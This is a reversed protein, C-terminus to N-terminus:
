ASAEAPAGTRTVAPLAGLLACARLIEGASRAAATPRAAAASDGADACCEGLHECIGVDLEPLLADLRAALAVRDAAAGRALLTAEVFAGLLWPVADRGPGPRLGRPAALTAAASALAREREAPALPARAFSAALLRGAAAAPDDAGERHSAVLAADARARAQRRRHARERNGAAEALESGFALASCWLADTLIRASPAPLDLVALDADESGPDEDRADLVEDVAASLLAVASADAAPCAEFYREVARVFWLSAAFGAYDSDAPGTGFRAPLRGDRLYPLAGCLVSACAAHRGRALTLGPLAVFTDVGHEGARPFGRQIGLRGDAAVSLYDDATAAIRAALVATPTTAPGRAAAQAMVRLRALRRWLDAPDDIARDLATAVVASADPEAFDLEIRAPSWHDEAAAGSGPEPAYEIGEYWVPEPVVRCAERALGGITTVVSPLAGYPQCSFGTSTAAALLRVSADLERNRVTLAGLARCALLPRLDLRVPMSGTARTSSARRVTYRVLVAARGKPVLLERVVLLDGVRFTTSGRAADGAPTLLQDARGAYVGGRYRGVGLRVAAASADAHVAEDFRSLFLHLATTGPRPAALLGHDARTPCCLLNSVAYGGRGDTALWHRALTGADIAALHRAATDLKPSPATTDHM